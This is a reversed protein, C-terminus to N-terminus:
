GRRSEVPGLYTTGRGAIGGFDILVREVVIGASMGWITLVHEGVVMEEVDFEVVVNRIENAVIGLWDHPVTGAHEVDVSDPIPTIIQPKHDDLQIGFALKTGLIFNFSPGIQITVIVKAPDYHALGAGTSWFNYTLSPGQGITYNKDSPPQITMGSLTRGYWQLEEWQHEPTSEIKDYHAAEIAVYGDGEVFGNYHKSVSATNPPVIIPIGVTVNTGDSGVIKVGGGMTYLEEKRPVKEWDVDVYFRVDVIGEKRVKGHTISTTVWSVNGELRFDVDKPGGSSIEVWRKESYPDLPNLVPEKCDWGGGCNEKNIGPWAGRNNEVSVRYYAPLGPPSAERSPRSPLFTEIYSVPPMTNREPEM